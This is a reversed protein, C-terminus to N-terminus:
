AVRAYGLLFSLKLKKKPKAGNGMGLIRFSTRVTLPGKVKTVKVGGGIRGSTM